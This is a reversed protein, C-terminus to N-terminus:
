QHPGRYFPTWPPLKLGDKQLCVVVWPLIFITTLTWLWLAALVLLAPLAVSTALLVICGVFGVEFAVAYASRGSVRNRIQESM